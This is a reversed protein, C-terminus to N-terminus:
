HVEIFRLRMSTSSEATSACVRGAPPYLTRRRRRNSRGECGTCACLLTQKARLRAYAEGGGEAGEVGGPGGGVGPGMVALPTEVRACLGEASLAGLLALDTGSGRSKHAMLAFQCSARHASLLAALAHAVPGAQRASTVLDAGLVLHLGGGGSSSDDGGGGGSSGGGPAQQAATEPATAARMADGGGGGGNDCDVSRLLCAPVCSADIAGGGGEAGAGGAGRVVRCWDLAAVRAAGGAAAVGAANSGVNSSLHPLADPLDTLWVRAGLHAAALGVIGTGSGLELVSGTPIIGKATSPTSPARLVVSLMTAAHTSAAASCDRASCARRACWLSGATM